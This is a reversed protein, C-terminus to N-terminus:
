SVVGERVARLGALRVWASLSLHSKDAAETFIQKEQETLRVQLFAERPRKKPEMVKM